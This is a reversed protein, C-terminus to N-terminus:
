AEVPKRQYIVQAQVVAELADALVKRARALEAEANTEFDPRAPLLRANRTMIRAGMEIGTLYASYDSTTM